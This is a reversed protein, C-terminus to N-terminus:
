ARILQIHFAVVGTHRSGPHVVVPQEISVTGDLCSGLDLNGELHTGGLPTHFVPNQLIQVSLFPLQGGIHFVRGLGTLFSRIVDSGILVVGVLRKDHGDGEALVILMQLNTQAAGDQPSATAASRSGTGRSGATQGHGIGVVVGVFGGDDDELFAVTDLLIGHIGIDLNGRVKEGEVSRGALGLFKGDGRVM